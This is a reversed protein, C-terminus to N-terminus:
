ILGFGESYNIATLLAKKMKEKNKYDPLILNNFCTHATPLQNLDNGGNTITISLSGLGDIPARDCGTVFSLFKKKEEENFDFLIEWFYKITESNKDYEEYQAAIKLEHFDLIQTGCLILELENPTLIKTLSKNFVKYFGKEFSRFYGDISKNFYWDTYLEVYEEKNSNNIMIKDGGPKLPIEIKEGFKDDIVTFNSDLEEELKPNDQKLIYNLNNYLEMDCEKLDEFTPKIGLLKKYISIPLKVDLITGNYIALGFITGILEYKINPEFSYHNFWFLRTKENYNFMGYNPDFIQRIVLIFFEKRVGGQDVGQEGVFKIKLENQLNARNKELENLADEILHDRRINLQLNFKSSNFFIDLFNLHNDPNGRRQLSKFFESKQKRGNFLRIIENKAATNFLWMYDFLTFELKDKNKNKEEETLYEDDNKEKEKEEEEEEDDNIDEDFEIKNKEKEEEIKKNINIKGSQNKQEEKKKRRKIKENKLFMQFDRRLNLDKSIGENYFMENNIISYYENMEHIVNFSRVFTQFLSYIDEDIHPVEKDDIITFQDISFLLLSLFNHCHMIFEKFDKPYKKFDEFSNYLKSNIKKLIESNMKNEDEIIMSSNEIDNELYLRSCNTILLFNNFFTQFIKSTDKSAMFNNHMCVYFFCRNMFYYLYYVICKERLTECKNLDVSQTLSSFYENFIKIEKTLDDVTYKKDKYFEILKSLDINIKPLCKNEDLLSEGYNYNPDISFFEFKKEIEIINLDDNCKLKDFHDYSNYKKNMEENIEILNKLINEDKLTQIEIFLFFTLFIIVIKAFSIIRM